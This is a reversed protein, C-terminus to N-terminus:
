SPEAFEPLRSPYPRLVHPEKGLWQKELGSQAAQIEQDDILAPCEPVVPIEGSCEEGQAQLQLQGLSLVKQADALAAALRQVYRHWRLIRFYGRGRRETSFRSEGM